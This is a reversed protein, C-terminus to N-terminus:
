TLGAVGKRGAEAELDRRSNRLYGLSRGGDSGWMNAEATGEAPFARRLDRGM